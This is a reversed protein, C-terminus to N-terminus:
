GIKGAPSVSFSGTKALAVKCILYYVPKIAEVMHGSIHIIYM